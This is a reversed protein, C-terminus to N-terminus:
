WIRWLILGLLIIIVTDIFSLAREIGALQYAIFHLNARLIGQPEEEYRKEVNKIM